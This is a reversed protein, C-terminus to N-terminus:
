RMELCFWRQEGWGLSAQSVGSLSCRAGGSSAGCRRTWGFLRSGGDVLVWVAREARGGRENRGSSDSGGAVGFIVGTQGTNGDRLTWWGGEGDGGRVTVGRV